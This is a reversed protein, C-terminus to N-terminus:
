KTPLRIDICDSQHVVLRVSSFKRCWHGPHCIQLTKSIMLKQQWCSALPTNMILEFGQANILLNLSITVSEKLTSEIPFTQIKIGISALSKVCFTNILILIIIFIIDLTEIHRPPRVAALPIKQSPPSTSFKESIESVVGHLVAM